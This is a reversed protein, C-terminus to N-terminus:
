ALSKARKRLKRTFGLAMGAGVVPLPVPVDTTFSLTSGSFSSFSYTGSLSNTDANPFSFSTTTGDLTFPPPSFAASVTGSLIDLDALTFFLGTDATLTFNFSGTGTPLFGTQISFTDPTGPALFTGPAFQATPVTTSNVLLEITGLSCSNNVLSGLTGAACLAAQASSIGFAFSSATALAAGALLGKPSFVTM